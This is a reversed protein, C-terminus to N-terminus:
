IPPRHSFPRLNLKTRHDPAKAPCGDPEIGQFYHKQWTESGKPPDTALKQVFLSRSEAWVRNRSALEPNSSLSRIEPEVAELSGRRIPFIHCLPEALEFGVKLDPRTVKWNMTFTFSLWDTEVVASLAAIGDKPRNIPGQVFLDIEPETVFVCPIALTLVGSGFHSVALSPQHECEISLSGVDDGGNWLATFAHPSLIEWGHSNAINLPLCRYAFRNGSRDMWDRSVPAPRIELRYGQQVYALLKM